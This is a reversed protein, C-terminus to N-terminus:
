QELFNIYEEDDERKMGKLDDDMIDQATRREKPREPEDSFMEHLDMLGYRVSDGSHDESKTNCDEVKLDDHVLSPITRIADKCTTFFVLRSTTRGDFKFPAMYQRMINWGIVRENNGKYVTFRDKWGESLEEDGTKPNQDAGHRGSPIKSFIAPDAMVREIEEDKPTMMDIKQGLQYYTHGTVYLERYVYVRGVPDLAAWYVASAATYGYDLWIFKQWFEPIKFPKCTNYERSWETFFQGEFLDWDGDRVARRMKEPLSDLTKYYDPELYQNDTAKAPVFAFEEPETENEEFDRDIWLKKVWAHGKEGPNTAAIFRPKKIGRWRMRFRLKEFVEVVNMTLEDVAVIAFESSRYKAPDDLNRFLIKGHGYEESLIFVKGFEKHDSHFTGLWDPFEEAIKSIQRDKLTPYDECFIAGVIGKRGTLKYWEILMIVVTWRLWYSKGGGGAGGYLLFKHNGLQKLAELQKSQFGVINTLNKIEQNKM